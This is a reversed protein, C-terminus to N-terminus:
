RFPRTQRDVPAVEGGTQEAAKAKLKMRRGQREVADVLQMVGKEHSQRLFDIRRLASLNKLGM